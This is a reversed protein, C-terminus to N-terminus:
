DLGLGAISKSRPWPEAADATLQCGRNTTEIGYLAANATNPVGPPFHIGSIFRITRTSLPAQANSFFGATRAITVAADWDFRSAGPRAYVGLIVGRRDVVAAALTPDTVASAAAALVAQVDGASLPPTTQQTQVRTSSSALLTLLLGVLVLLPRVLTNGRTRPKPSLFDTIVM